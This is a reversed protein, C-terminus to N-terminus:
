LRGGTPSRFRPWRSPRVDWRGSWLASLRHRPRATSSSDLWQIEGALLRRTFATRAIRLVRVLQWTPLLDIGEVGVEGVRVVRVASVEEARLGSSRAAGEEVAAVATAVRSRATSGKQIPPPTRLLSTACLAFRIGASVTRASVSPRLEEQPSRRGRLSSSGKPRERPSGASGLSSSSLCRPTRIMPQWARGRLQLPM